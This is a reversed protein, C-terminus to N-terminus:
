GQEIPASSCGTNTNLVRPGVAPVTVQPTTCAPLQAQHM